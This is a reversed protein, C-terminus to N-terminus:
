TVLLQLLSTGCDSANYLKGENPEDASSVEIRVRFGNDTQREQFLDESFVDGTEHETATFLDLEIMTLLEFNQDKNKSGDRLNVSPHGIDV